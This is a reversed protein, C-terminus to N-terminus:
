DRLDVVRKTKWSRSPDAFAAGDALEVSPTIGAAQKVTQALRGALPAADAPVKLTLTDGQANRAISFQFERGELVSEAAQVLVDPNVLTGKIKLLTDARRPMAVLRDTWSGCHPCQGSGLASIDGLAYRLLVTGTRRLHSLTVLGSQGDAVRAGSGPDVVAIHFQDPAPNHYGSGPACEVMGGQMETAGYSISVWADPSGLRRLAATLEARAPEGLGEGTVFALRVARFDAGLEEARAVVRRVYSPVGWLITARSRAVIAVVEDLANGLTFHPSPNGPLAAVVRLNMSAAAHMTRIFAGHPRATLPFLNAIVDDGRVGRLRLMNRNLELIGFFDYSTSVFPTPQGATSGTTYMVDWVTRMEEPLSADAIRFADPERMYDDKRTLPLRALDDLSRFDAAALGREALVRRYYSHGAAIRQMTQALRRTQVAEIEARSAFLLDSM